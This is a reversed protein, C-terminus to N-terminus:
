ERSSLSKNRPKNASQGRIHSSINEFHAIRLAKLDALADFETLGTMSRSDADSLPASDTSTILARTV